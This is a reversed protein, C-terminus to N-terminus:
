INAVDIYHPKLLGQDDYYRLTRISVQALKSFDGIKLMLVEGSTV